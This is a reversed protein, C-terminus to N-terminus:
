VVEAFAFNDRAETIEVEVRDGVDTDPVFVVYGPGIRALGDGQEGLDEIEVEEIDGVEVPPGDRYQDQKIGAPTSSSATSAESEEREGTALSPLVAIRLVEGKNVAGLDIEQEPIEVIYSGNQQEVEAHFMSLLSDSIDM